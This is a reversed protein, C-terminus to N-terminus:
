GVLGEATPVANRNGSRRHFNKSLPQLFIATFINELFCKLISVMRERSLFDYQMDIVLPATDTTM